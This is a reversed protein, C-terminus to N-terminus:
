EGLKTEIAKLMTSAREAVKGNGGKLLAQLAKAAGDGKKERLQRDIKDLKKELALEAKAEDTGFQAVLPTVEAVWDAKTGVSELLAKAADQAAEFRGQNKRTEIAKKALAYRNDIEAQLMTRDNGVPMADVLAAAAALDRKGYLAARVKKVEPTPGWGKKVKDLEIAIAEEIPKMGATPKGDFLLTGDVGIVVTHPLGEFEPTPVVGGLCVFADNDPFTQQMFPVLRDRDAGQREMLVTVLGKSSLEHDHEIATPVAFAICPGCKTGWYDVLIPYGFFDKLSQRGDGNLFEPFTFDPVREGVAAAKQASVPFALLLSALLIPQKM